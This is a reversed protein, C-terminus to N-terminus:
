SISFYDKIRGEYMLFRHFYCLQVAVAIIYYKVLIRFESNNVSFESNEECSQWFDGHGRRDVAVVQDLGLHTALLIQFPGLVDVLFHVIEQLRGTGLVADTEPVRTGTDDVLDDELIVCKWTQQHDAGVGVRGVSATQATEADTYTASVGHVHHGVYRPLQFAGLHDPHLQRPGELPPRTGLVDNELHGTDQRHFSSGTGDDFVIPWTDLAYTASPHSGDAVHAGLYARCRGDEGVVKTHLIVQPRSSSGLDCVRGIQVPLAKESGVGVSFVILDDLEIKRRQLWVHVSRERGIESM